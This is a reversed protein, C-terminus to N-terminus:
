LNEFNSDGSIIELKVTSLKKQGTSSDGGKGLYNVVAYRHPGPTSRTCDTMSGTRRRTSCTTSTFSREWPKSATRRWWRIRFVVIVPRGILCSSLAVCGIYRHVAHLGAPTQLSPVAAQRGTQPQVPRTVRPPLPQYAGGGLQLDVPRLLWVKGGSPLDKDTQQQRREQLCFCTSLLSCHTSKM